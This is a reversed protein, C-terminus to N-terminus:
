TGQCARAVMADLEQLMDYTRGLGVQALTRERQGRAQACRIEALDTANPAVYQPAAPRLAARPPPLRQRPPEIDPPAPIARTMRQGPGCPASQFAVGGARDVCRYVMPVTPTQELRASAAAESDGQGSPDVVARPASVPSPGATWATRVLLARVTLLFLLAGVVAVVWWVATSARRASGPPMRQRRARFVLADREDIQM